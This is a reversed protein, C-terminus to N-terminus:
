LMEVVEDIRELLKRGKETTCYVKRGGDQTITLHGRACLGRLYNNLLTYSLNSSYMIQTRSAKGLRLIDAVIEFKSRRSSM